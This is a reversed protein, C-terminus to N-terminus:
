LMELYYFSLNPPLTIVVPEELFYENVKLIIGLCVQKPYVCLWFLSLKVICFVVYCGISLLWFSGISRATVSSPAPSELSTKFLSHLDKREKKREKWKKKRKRKKRSPHSIIICSSRFLRGSKNKIKLSWSFLFIVYDMKKWEWLPIKKWPHRQFIRVNWWTYSKLWINGPILSTNVLGLVNQLSYCDRRRQVAWSETPELLFWKLFHLFQLIRCFQM